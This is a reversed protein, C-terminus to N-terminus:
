AVNRGQAGATQDTVATPQCTPKRYRFGVKLLLSLPSVGSSTFDLWTVALTWAALNLPGPFARLPSGLAPARFGAAGM